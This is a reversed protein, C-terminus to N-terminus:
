ASWAKSDFARLSEKRGLCTLSVSVQDMMPSTDHGM